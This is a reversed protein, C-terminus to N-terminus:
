PKIPQFRRSIQLTRWRLKWGSILYVGLVSLILIAAHYMLSILTVPLKTWWWLLLCVALDVLLLRRNQNVLYGSTYVFDCSMGGILLVGLSLPLALIVAYILGTTIGILATLLGRGFQSIFVLLVLTSLFPLGVSRELYFLVLWGWFQLLLFLIKRILM